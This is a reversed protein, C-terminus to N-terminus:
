SFRPGRLVLGQGSRFQARIVFIWGNKRLPWVTAAVVAATCLLLVAAAVIAAPPIGEEMSVAAVMPAGALTSAEAVEATSAVEVATSDEAVAVTSVEVVVVTFVAAVEAAVVTVAM